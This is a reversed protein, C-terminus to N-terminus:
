IKPSAIEEIHAKIKNVSYMPIRLTESNFHMHGCAVLKKVTDVDIGLENAAEDVDLSTRRLSEKYPHLRWHFDQANQRINADDSLFTTLNNGSRGISALCHAIGNFWADDDEYNDSGGGHGRLHLVEISVGKENALDFIPDFMARYYDVNKLRKDCAFDVIPLFDTMLIIKAGKRGFRIAHFLGHIAASLEGDQSSTEIKVAMAEFFVTDNFRVVIGMGSSKRDHSADTYVKITEMVDHNSSVMKRRLRPLNL